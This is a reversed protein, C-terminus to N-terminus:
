QLREQGARRMGRTRFVTGLVAMTASVVLGVVTFGRSVVTTVVMTLAFAFLAFGIPGFDAVPDRM